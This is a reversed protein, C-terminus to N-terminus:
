LLSFIRKYNKKGIQDTQIYNKTKERLSEDKLLDRIEEDSCCLLWEPEVDNINFELPSLIFHYIDHKEGFKDFVKYLDSFSKNSRLSTIYQFVGLYNDDPQYENCLSQLTSSDSPCTQTRNMIRLYHILSKCHMFIYDLYKKQIDKPLIKYMALGIEGDCRVLQKFDLYDDFVFNSTSLKSSLASIFDITDTTNNVLSDKILSVAMQNSPTYKKIIEHLNNVNASDFLLKPYAHIIKYLKDITENSIENACKSVVYIINGIIYQIHSVRFPLEKTQIDGFVGKEFMSNHMKSVSEKLYEVAGNDLVISDIEYQKFIDILEKTGIFSILIFLDDNSLKHIKSPQFIGAIMNDKTTHSNLIGIITDTALFYFFSNSYEICNWICFRFVRWFRSKLNPVNSNQSAGGRESQKKQKHLEGALREAEKANESFIKNYFLDRLTLKVAPAIPMRNLLTELDFEGIDELIGEADIDKRYMLEAQIRYRIQYMNYLSIFYLVYLEKRWFETIRSKYILYADYFRGVRCLLYPLILDRKDYYLGAQSLSNIQKIVYNFDLDYFDDVTKYKSLKDTCHQLDSNTLIRLHDIQTIGLLLAQEKLFDREKKPHEQVFKKRGKYTKLEKVIGRISDSELQLGRSYYNWFVREKTPFLYRIGDGLTTMEQQISLLSQYLRSVINNSKVKEFQRIIQLQKFLTKGRESPLKNLELQNISIDFSEIYEDSDPINVINIGKQEYYRSTDKDIYTDGTLLYVRQMDKNLINKLDNLIVKLNLDAFSFGVFLVVNTTFLSTVFSRILPFNSAYNYYDEEALVVNGTNFDGHMKILKNPFRYYPLDKDKSVIDYQKYDIQIAQEILDDYNTTIIHAPNLQLIAHHIPSCAVKGDKLIVKIKEIYDKYGYSDKYIQAIKLDDKENSLSKPLDDKLATILEGWTPVGSNASVGAGVFIVLRGQKSAEHLKTLQSIQTNNEM